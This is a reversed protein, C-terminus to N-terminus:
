KVSIVAITLNQTLVCVIITITNYINYIYLQIKRNSVLCYYCKTQFDYIDINDMDDMIVIKGDGTKLTAKFFSM